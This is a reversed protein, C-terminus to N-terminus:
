KGGKKALKLIRSKLKILVEGSWIGSWFMFVGAGVLGILLWGYFEWGLGLWVTNTKVKLAEILGARGLGYAVWGLWFVFGAQGSKYWKLSKFRLRWRSMVGLFGLVLLLHYLSLYHRWGAGGLVLVGKGWKLEGGEWCVGGSCGISVWFLFVWGSWMVVDLLQWVNVDKKRAQFWILFWFVLWLVVGSMGPYQGWDFFRGLDVKNIVLWGVRAAIFGWVLGKIVIAFVMDDDWSTHRLEKWLVFGAVLLGWAVMVSFWFVWLFGLQGIIYPM